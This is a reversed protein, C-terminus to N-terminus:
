PTCRGVTARPAARDRPVVDSGAPRGAPGSAPEARRSLVVVGVTMMAFGALQGAILGPRLATTEGFAAAGILISVVPDVITILPLSSALPGANFALQNVAIAGVVIGAFAYLPWSALVGAGSLAFTGVTTKVLGALLGYAAGACFGLWAARHRAARAAAVRGAGATALVAAVCWGLTSLDATSRGAAPHATLEFIVLGVVVAASAAVDVTRVTQRELMVSLPLAFLLTSVLLPQVVSLQGGSLALVHLCFAAVGTIAGVLWLPRRLVQWLRAGASNRGARHQLVSAVALLLASGLAAAVSFV